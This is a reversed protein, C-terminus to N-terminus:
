WCAVTPGHLSEGGFQMSEKKLGGSVFRFHNTTALKFRTEKEARDKSM